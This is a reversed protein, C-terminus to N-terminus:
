LLVRQLARRQVSLPSIIVANESSFMEPVNLCNRQSATAISGTDLVAPIAQSKYRDQAKLLVLLNRTKVLLTFFPYSPTQFETLLSRYEAKWEKVDIFM